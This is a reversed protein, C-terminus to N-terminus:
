NQLFESSPPPEPPLEIGEAEIASLRRYLTSRAMGLLRAAASRNGNTQRLIAILERRERESLSSRVAPVGERPTETFDALKIVPGSAGIAAAEISGKLQRVNGPWHQAQLHQMAERSIGEVRLGHQERARRLFAAALLPIDETRMRLAPLRLRVVRIRYLLDERFRGAAVERDLDRHTAALVRVDIPRPRAEGLRLIHREELVRLLHTQVSMPMDGIEDLLLTGGNAAEFLGIQDSVAGTFAGRLHGFLQSALLSETLGACNIVVFPKHKRQSSDHIARAVLEKGTGTEGEVMVTADLAAIRAIQHRLDCMTVSEGLLAGVAGPATHLARKLDVMETIDYFHLVRQEPDGLDVHVEIETWFRRGSQPTLEAIVRVGPQPMRLQAAIRALSDPVIPLIRDLKQGIAVAAPVGALLPRMAESVFRVCADRDVLMVGVRLQNFTALLRKHTTELESKAARLAEREIQLDRTREAVLAELQEARRGTQRVRLKVAIILALLFLALIAAAFAFGEHRELALVPCAVVRCAGVLPYQDLSAAAAGRASLAYGCVTLGCTRLLVFPGPSCRAFSLVPDGGVPARTIRGSTM